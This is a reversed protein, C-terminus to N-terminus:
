NIRSRRLGDTPAKAKGPAKADAAYASVTALYVDEVCSLLTKYVPYDSWKGDIGAAASLQGAVLACADGIRQRLQKTVANLSQHVLSEPAGDEILRRVAVFNKGADGGINKGQALSTQKAAMRLGRATAAADGPLSEGEALPGRVLARNHDCVDRYTPLDALIAAFVGGILTDVGKRDDADPLLRATQVLYADRLSNTFDDVFALVGQGTTVTYDGAMLAALTRGGSCVPCNCDLEDGTMEAWRNAARAAARFNTHDIGM